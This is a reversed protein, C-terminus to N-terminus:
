GNPLRKTPDKVGDNYKQKFIDKSKPVVIHELGMKYIDQELGINLWKEM